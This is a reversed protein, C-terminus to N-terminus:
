ELIQLTIQEALYQIVAAGPLKQRISQIDEGPHHPLIQLHNWLSGIEEMRDMLITQTANLSADVM